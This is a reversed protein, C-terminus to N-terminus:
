ALQDYTRITLVKSKDPVLANREAVGAFNATTIEDSILSLDNESALSVSHFQYESLQGQDCANSGVFKLVGVVDGQTAAAVEDLDQATTAGTTIGFGVTEGAARWAGTTDRLAAHTDLHQM